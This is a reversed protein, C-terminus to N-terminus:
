AHDISRLKETRYNSSPIAAPPTNGTTIKSRIILRRTRTMVAVLDARDFLAATIGDHLFENVGVNVNFDKPSGDGKAGLARPLDPLRLIVIPPSV